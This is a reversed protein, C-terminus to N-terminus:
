SVITNKKYWTRKGAVTAAKERLLKKKRRERVRTDRWVAGGTRAPYRLSGSVADGRTQLWPLLKPMM